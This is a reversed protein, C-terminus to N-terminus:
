EIICTQCKVNYVHCKSQMHLTRECLNYDYHILVIFLTETDVLWDVAYALSADNGPRGVMWNKIAQVLGGGEMKAYQLHNFAPRHSPRPVLSLIHM